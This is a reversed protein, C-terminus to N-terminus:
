VEVLESGSILGSVIGDYHKRPNPKEIFGSSSIVVGTVPLKTKTEAQFAAIKRLLSERLNQDIAIPTNTHKVECLNIVRDARKLVLDIQASRGQHFSRWNSPEVLIGSIKLSDLIQDIHNLCVIEFSYGAWSFYAPTQSQKQWYYQPLKTSQLELTKMWKFYFRTFHDVVQFYRNRTGGPFSSFEKIFLSSELEQLAKTIHGGDSIGLSNVLEARSIGYHKSAIRGILTLHLEANNFLSGMLSDYEKVLIGNPDFCLREIIQNVSYGTPIWDLYYPIGGTCMYLEILAQTHLSIGRAQLYEQTEGLSFPRLNIIRTIRNHLGAKNHVIRDLMWSAASGCLIFKLGAIKELRSNWFHDLEDLLQSRKSALWPLEDFFIVPKVELQEVVRCLATLAEHWDKPPYVFAAEPFTRNFAEMFIQLQKEKNGNKLGIVEFFRRGNNPRTFFNRILFTKGVRRRGYVTILQAKPSQDLEELIELEATRGVINHESIEDIPM